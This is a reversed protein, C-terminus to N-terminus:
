PYYEHRREAGQLREGPKECATAEEAVPLANLMRAYGVWPLAQPDERRADDQADNGDNAAEAITAPASEVPDDTFLAVQNFHVKISVRGARSGYSGRM